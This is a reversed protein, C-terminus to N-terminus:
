KIATTDDVTDENALIEVESVMEKNEDHWEDLEHLFNRKKYIEM